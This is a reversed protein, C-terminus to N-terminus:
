PRERLLTRLRDTHAGRPHEAWFREALAAAAGREGRALLAEVRILTAEPALMGAGIEQQRQDLAALAAAADGRGLAARAEDLLAVERSLKEANRAGSPLPPASQPRPTESPAARAESRVSAPPQTVPVSAFEGRPPPDTRQEKPGLARRQPPTSSVPSSIGHQLAKASVACTAGVVAGVAVWKMVLFTLTSKSLAAATAAPATIGAMAGFATLARGMARESGADDAASRLAALEFPDAGGELLRPPLKM